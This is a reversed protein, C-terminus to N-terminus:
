PKDEMPVLTTVFADLWERPIKRMGQVLASQLYPKGTAPDIDKILNYIKNRNMGLLASAEEVSLLRKQDLPVEVKRKTRAM